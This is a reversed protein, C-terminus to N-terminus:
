GEYLPVRPKGTEAAGSATRGQVADTRGLAPQNVLCHLCDLSVEILKLALRV